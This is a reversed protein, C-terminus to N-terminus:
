LLAVLDFHCYGASTLELNTAVATPFRGDFTQAFESTRKRGTEREIPNLGILPLGKKSVVTRIYEM